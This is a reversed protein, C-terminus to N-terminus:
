AKQKAVFFIFSLFLGLIAFILLILPVVHRSLDGKFSIALKQFFGRETTTKLLMQAEGDKQLKRPLYLVEIKDGVKLADYEGRSILETVTKQREFNLDADFYKVEVKFFIHVFDGNSTEYKEGKESKDLVLAKSTLAHKKFYDVTRTFPLNIWWLSIAVLALSSILLAIKQKM